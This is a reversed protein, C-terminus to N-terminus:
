EELRVPSLASALTLANVRSPRLLPVDPGSGGTHSLAGVTGAPCEARQDGTIQRPWSLPGPLRPQYAAGLRKASAAGLTGPRAM